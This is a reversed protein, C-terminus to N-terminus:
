EVEEQKNTTTITLVFPGRYRYVTAKRNANDGGQEILLVDAAVLHALLRAAHTKSAGILGAATRCALYFPQNGARVQIAECALELRMLLDDTQSRVWPGVGALIAGDGGSRVREWAVVFDKWSEGFDKTRIRPLALRHWRQV